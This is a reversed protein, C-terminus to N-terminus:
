EVLSDADTRLFEAHVLVFETLLELVNFEHGRRIGRVLNGLLSLGVSKM